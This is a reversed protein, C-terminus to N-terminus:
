TVLREGESSGEAGLGLSEYFEPYSIRISEETEWFAEKPSQRSRQILLLSVERRRLM